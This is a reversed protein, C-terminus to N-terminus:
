RASRHIMAGSAPVCPPDIIRGVRRHLALVWDVSWCLTRRIM